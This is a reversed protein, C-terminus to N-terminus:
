RKGDIILRQIKKVLIESMFDIEGEAFEVPQGHHNVIYTTPVGRVKWENVVQMNPDSLIPFELPPDFNEVFKNIETSEEGVNIALLSFAENELLTSLAQMSPLEKLCPACWTAWFNIVVVQGRLQALRWVTGAQDILAFDLSYPSDSTERFKSNLSDEAASMPFHCTALMFFILAIARSAIM